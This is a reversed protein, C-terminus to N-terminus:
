RRKIPLLSKRKKVTKAPTGLIFDMFSFAEEKVQRPDEILPIEKVAIKCEKEVAKKIAKQANRGAYVPQAEGWSKDKVNNIMKKADFEQWPNLNLLFVKRECWLLEERFAIYEDGFDMIIREYGHNLLIPIQEKKLNPYYCVGQDTFYGDKNIEKWHSIEGHGCIELYATKEGLGGAAYNALAM